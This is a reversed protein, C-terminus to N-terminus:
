HVLYAFLAYAKVETCSYPLRFNTCPAMDLTWYRDQVTLSYVEIFSFIWLGPFQMCTHMGGVAVGVRASHIRVIRGGRLVYWM